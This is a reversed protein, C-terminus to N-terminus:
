RMLMRKRCGEIEEAIATLEEYVVLSDDTATDKETAIRLETAVEGLVESTEEVESIESVEVATEVIEVEEMEPIRFVTFDEQM